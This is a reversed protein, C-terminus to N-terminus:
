RTAAQAAPQEYSKLRGLVQQEGWNPALPMAPHFAAFRAKAEDYLPRAVDAGGGFMKPTFYVNNAEVLYARPNAPNLGKARAVTEGVLPSFKMSRSMPSVSLRAQYLYAQLV